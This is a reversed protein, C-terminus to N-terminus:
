ENKAKKSSYGITTYNYCSIFAKYSIEDTTTAEVYGDCEEGVGDVFNDIGSSVDVNSRIGSLFNIVENYAVRVFPVGDVDGSNRTPSYSYYIDVYNQINNDTIFTPIMTGYVGNAM